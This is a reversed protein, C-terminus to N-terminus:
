SLYLGCFPKFQLGKKFILVTYLFMCNAVTGVVGEQRLVQAVGMNCQRNPEPLMQSQLNAREEYLSSNYNIVNM